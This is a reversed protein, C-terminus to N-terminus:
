LLGGVARVPVGPHAPRGIRGGEHGPAGADVPVTEQERAPVAGGADRVPQHVGAFPRVGQPRKTHGLPDSELRDDRQAYLAAVKTDRREVRLATLESAAYRRPESSRGGRAQPAGGAWSRSPGTYREKLPERSPPK